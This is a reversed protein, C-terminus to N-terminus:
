DLAFDLLLLSQVLWILGVFIRAGADAPLARARRSILEQVPAM